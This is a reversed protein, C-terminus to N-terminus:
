GPIANCEVFMFPEAVTQELGRQEYMVYDEGRQEEVTQEPGRQEYMVYDETRQEEVTQEPRRQEPRWQEPRRQEAAYYMKPEKNTAIEIELIYFIYNLKLVNSLLQM